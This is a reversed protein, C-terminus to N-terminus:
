WSSKRGKTNESNVGPRQLPSLKGEQKSLYDMDLKAQEDALSPWMVSALRNMRPREHWEVPKMKTM